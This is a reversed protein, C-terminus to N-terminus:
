IAVPLGVFCCHQGRRTPCSGLRAAGGAGSGGGGVTLLSLISKESGDYAFDFASFDSSIIYPIRCPAYGFLNVNIRAAWNIM